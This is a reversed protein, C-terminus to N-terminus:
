APITAILQVAEPQFWGAFVEGITFLAVGLTAVFTLLQMWM